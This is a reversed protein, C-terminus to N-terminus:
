VYFRFAGLRIAGLTYLEVLENAVISEPLSLQKSLLPILPDRNAPLTKMLGVIKQQRPSLNM